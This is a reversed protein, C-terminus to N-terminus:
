TYAISFEDNGSESPVAVYPINYMVLGDSDEETLDVLQATPVEIACNVGSGASPGHVISINDLTITGLHSQIAAWYDKTAIPIHEFLVNGRTDRDTIEVRTSGVLNRYVVNNGLDLNFTDGVVDQDHVNFTTTNTDNMPYPTQDTRTPDPLAVATPKAYIGTFTFNYMPLGGRSMSISVNGRCGIIVQREGDEFYYITCSEFSESVPAYTVSTDAVITESLGCARLLPGYPPAVGAASGGALEVSFTVTVLAGTVIQEDAGMYPYNVDRQVRNGGYPVRQLGSTLIFNTGEVPTPDTAYSSEIEALIARKRAYQTM